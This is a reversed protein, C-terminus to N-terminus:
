NRSDYFLDIGTLIARYTDGSWGYSIADSYANLQEGEKDTGMLTWLFNQVAIVKCGPFTKIAQRAVEERNM